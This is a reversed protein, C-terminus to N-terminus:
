DVAVVNNVIHLAIAAELGGTRWTLIGMALAMVAVSALGTPNYLHGLTFLPIPLLIGWWPSRLWSGLVQQPLARFAYEEAAAQLPVVLIAVALLGLTAPGVSPGPAGSTLAVALSIGMAIGMVGLAWLLHTGLRGWRLRGTVSTMTGLSRGEGLRVGLALAPIVLALQGFMLLAGVPHNPHPLLVPGVERFPITDDGSTAVGLAYSFVNSLLLWTVATIALTLLPRWWRHRPNALAMRHFPLGVPSLEVPALAGTTPTSTTQTMTNNM